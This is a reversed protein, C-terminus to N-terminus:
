VFWKVFRNYLYLIFSLFIILISVNDQSVSFKSLLIKLFIVWNEWRIDIVHVIALIFEEDQWKINEKLNM